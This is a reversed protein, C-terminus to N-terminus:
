LVYINATAGQYNIGFLMNLSKSRLCESSAQRAENASRCNVCRWKTFTQRKARRPKVNLGGEIAHVCQWSDTPGNISSFEM